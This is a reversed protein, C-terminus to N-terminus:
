QVDIQGNNAVSIIVERIGNTLVFDTETSDGSLQTFIIDAPLPTKVSMTPSVAIVENTSGNCGTGDYANEFIIYCGTEFHVGHPKENINNMAQNRAKQLVSVVIKQESLFAFGRYFDWGLFLGLGAILGILGIGIVVEILTFGRNQTSTNPSAM